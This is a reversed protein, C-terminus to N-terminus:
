NEDAADSTYLLCPMVGIVTMPERNLLITRGLAQPDGAFQSQWVRHSIMAVAPAAPAEDAPSFNRGLLPQVGLMSFLNGTVYTATLGKSGEGPRTVVSNYTRFAALEPLVNQERQLFQFDAAPMPGGAEGLTHLTVIRDGDPFPLGRLLVGDLLSFLATSLGIGLALVLITFGARRPRRLLTRGAIRLDQGTPVM